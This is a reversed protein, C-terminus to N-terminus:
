GTYPAFAKPGPIQVQFDERVENNGVDFRLLSTAGGGAYMETVINERTGPLACSTVAKTIQRGDLSVMDGPSLCVDEAFESVPANAGVDYSWEAYLCSTPPDTWGSYEVEFDIEEQCRRALEGSHKATDIALVATLRTVTDNATFTGIGEDPPPVWILGQIAPTTTTTAVATTTTVVTTTTPRQTTPVEEATEPAATDPASLQTRLEANEEELEQVQLELESVQTQLEPSAADDDDGGCANAGLLVLPVVAGLLSRRSVRPVTKGKARGATEM